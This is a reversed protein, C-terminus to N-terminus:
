NTILKLISVLFIIKILVLTSKPNESSDFNYKIEKVKIIQNEFKKLDGLMLKILNFFIGRDKDGIFLLNIKLM